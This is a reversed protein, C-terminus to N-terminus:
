DESFVVNGMSLDINFTHLNEAEPDYASSVYINDRIEKFHSPVKMKHLTTNKVRVMLPIPENPLKVALTGAGVRAWIESGEEPAEEFDLVLSGIGVEAMIVKARSLNLRDIEVDGLDVDVLFTDMQVLNRMKSHYGVKVNANGSKIRLREVAIDSLDVYSKGMGYSLDLHYPTYDSFYINWYNESNTTKSSFLSALTSRIGHKKNNKLNLWANLVDNDHKQGFEPKVDEDDAKGVISIPYKGHRTRIDCTATASKLTFYIRSCSDTDQVKFHRKTQGVADLGVIGLITALLLVKQM